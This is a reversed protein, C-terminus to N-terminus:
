DSANLEFVESNTERGIAHVITTKGIGPPGHLVVAKKKSNPNFTDLFIKIGQIAEDQGRIESTTKPRYKEVWPSM